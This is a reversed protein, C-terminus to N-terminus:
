IGLFLHDTERQRRKRRLRILGDSSGISFAAGPHPLEPAEPPVVPPETEEGWFGASWFGAAWFGAEWFNM